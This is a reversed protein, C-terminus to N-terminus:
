AYDIEQSITTAATTSFHGNEQCSAVAIAQSTMEAYWQLPPITKLLYILAYQLGRPTEDIGSLMYRAYKRAKKSEDRRRLWRKAYYRLAKCLRYLSTGENLASESM